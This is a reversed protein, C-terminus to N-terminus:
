SSAPSTFGRRRLPRVVSQFCVQIHRLLLLFPPHPVPETWLLLCRFRDTANILPTSNLSFAIPEILWEPLTGTLPNKFTRAREAQNKLCNTLAIRVACPGFRGSTASSM